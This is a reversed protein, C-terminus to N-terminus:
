STKNNHKMWKVENWYQEIYYIYAVSVYGLREDIEKLYREDQSRYVLQYPDEIFDMKPIGRSNSDEKEDSKGEEANSNNNNNNNKKSTQQKKKTNSTKSM